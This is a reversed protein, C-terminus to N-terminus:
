MALKQLKPIDTGLKQMNMIWDLNKRSLTAKQQKQPKNQAETAIIEVTRAWRPVSSIFIDYHGM